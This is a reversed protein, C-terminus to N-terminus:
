STRAKPSIKGPKKAAAAVTAQSAKPAKVEPKLEEAKVAAPQAEASKAEIQAVGNGSGNTIPGNGVPASLQGGGNITIYDIIELVPRQRGGFETNMFTDRLRVRPSLNPGRMKRAMATSERVARVAQGGGFTSTLYTFIEFTTPDILYTCYCWEWPGVTKGFKERWTDKPEAANLADTNLKASAPFRQTSGPVPRDDLGWKQQVKGIDVVIFARDPDIVTDEGIVWTAENTFKLKHGKIIRDGSEDTADNMGDDYQQMDSM